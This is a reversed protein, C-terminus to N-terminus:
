VSNLLLAQIGNQHLFFGWFSTILIALFSWFQFYNVSIGFDGTTKHMFSLPHGDLTCIYMYDSCFEWLQCSMDSSKALSHVSFDEWASHLQLGGTSHWWVKDICSLTIWDHLEQSARLCCLNTEPCKPLCRMVLATVPRSYRSLCLPPVHSIPNSPLPSGFILFTCLNRQKWLPKCWGLQIVCRRLRAKWLTM